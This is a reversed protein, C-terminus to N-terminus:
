VWYNDIVCFYINELNATESNDLSQKILDIICQYIFITKNGKHITRIIGISSKEFPM